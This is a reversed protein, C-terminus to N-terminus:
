WLREGEPNSGLGIGDSTDAVPPAPVHRVRELAELMRDAARAMIASRGVEPRGIASASAEEHIRIADGVAARLHALDFRDLDPDHPERAVADRDVGTVEGDDCARWVTSPMGGEARRKVVLGLGDRQETVWGLERLEATRTRVGSPSWGPLRAILETHTMGGHYRLKHIIARQLDARKGAVQAAAADWSTQPDNPRVRKAATM